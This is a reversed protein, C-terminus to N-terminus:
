LWSSLKQLQKRLTKHYNWDYVSSDECYDYVDDWGHFRYFLVKYADWELITDIIWWNGWLTATTMGIDMAMWYRNLFTLQLSNFVDDDQPEIVKWTAPDITDLQYIERLQQNIHHYRTLDIGLREDFYRELYDWISWRTSFQEKFPQYNEFARIVHWTGLYQGELMSFEVAESFGSLFKLQNEKFSIYYDSM